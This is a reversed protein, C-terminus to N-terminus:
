AKFRGTSPAFSSPSSRTAGDEEGGGRIRMVDESGGDDGSDGRDGEGGGERAGSGGDDGLIFRERSPVSGSVSPEGLFHGRRITMVEGLRRACACSKVVADGSDGSDGRDGSGGEGDLTVSASSSASPAGLFRRRGIIIM